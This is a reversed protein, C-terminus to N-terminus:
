HASNARNENVDPPKAIQAPTAAAPTETFTALIKRADGEGEKAAAKSDRLFAEIM